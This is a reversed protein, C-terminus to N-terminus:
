LLQSGILDPYGRAFAEATMLAKGEPKVELIQVSGQRTGVIMGSNVVGPVLQDPRVSLKTIQLRKQRIDMTYIGPWQSYARLKREIQIASEENWNIKGEEKKITKCLTVQSEDQVRGAVMGHELNRILTATMMGSIKGLRESLSEFTDTPSVPEEESRMVVPGADLKLVMRQITVGTISDGALIAAQIPSAGRWRPLLSFHSNFCGKVPIDLLAQPLIQGFACVIIATPNFERIQDLFVSDRIKEPTEVHLGADLAFQKVPSPTMIKKRGAPRDPQTYVAQVMGGADMIGVLSPIAMEPTGMFIVNM